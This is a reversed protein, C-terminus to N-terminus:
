RADIYKEDWYRMMKVPVFDGVPRAVGLAQFLAEALLFCGAGKTASIVASPRVNLDFPLIEGQHPHGRYAMDINILYEFEFADLIRGVCQDVDVNKEILGAELSGHRPALKRQPIIYRAKRDQVLVEVSYTQGELYEMLLFPPFNDRGELLALLRPLSLLTEQKSTLVHELEDFGARLLRFGRSGRGELPKLVVQKEPYGLARLSEEVERRSRPRYFAPTPMGRDRLHCLFGYKNSAVITTAFSSGLVVTGQTRLRERQGALTVAEEDSLPVLVDIKMSACLDLMRAAYDPARGPPVQVFEDVFYAGVAEKSADVGVIALDLEPVARLDAVLRPIGLGGVCTLLIRAKTGM